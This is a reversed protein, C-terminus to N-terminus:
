STRHQSPPVQQVMGVSQHNNPGHTADGVHRAKTTKMCIHCREAITQYTDGLELQKRINTLEQEVQFMRSSLQTMQKAYEQYQTNLTTHLTLTKQLRMVEAKLHLLHMNNLVKNITFAWPDNASLHQIQEDSMTHHLCGTEREELYVPVSYVPGDKKLCGAVDMGGNMYFIYKVMVKDGNAMAIELPFFMSSNPNNPFFPFELAKNDQEM